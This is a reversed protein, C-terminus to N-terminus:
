KNLFGSKWQYEWASKFGDREGELTMATATGNCCRSGLSTVKGDAHAGAGGDMLTHAGSRFRRRDSGAMQVWEVRM